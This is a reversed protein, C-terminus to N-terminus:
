GAAFAGPHRTHFDTTDQWAKAVALVKADGFLHGIFSISTPTGDEARFGNPVVVAPHGTLNTYQLLRPAYSPTIVVDVEALAEDMARMLLTRLRNANVYEVAPVFHSARFSNPWAGRGQRVLLDDRNSRTLEDFAAAAEVGLIFGMASPPYADEDPLEVTVMAPALRRMTDLAQRDFAGWEAGNDGRDRDFASALYGVRIGAIGATGDWNFAADRVTPDKGDPGHIADMVLACDEVTRCLPGLKDMSWSLAMAGARSVWGFTPRLASAGCRTAPSVISGLTESGIAFGLLGAVTAAASGASSGSSGQELNWPNKTTGGYWVDGMALAGLTLKAVLVAGAADLRQVVTAEDDLRQDEYPKAGWTTRYDRVALLDKAGWPIGHLPGRYRGATIEADAEAAQRLARAETLEIVCELTPGHRKLRALYMQTLETATVQRTRVLEALETVPRFAIAELNAPRRVRAPRSAVLPRRERPLAAMPVAPDFSLAPRVQNPIAIARLQKFGELNRNLSQVMLEREEETFELGAVKEAEDLLDATITQADQLRAWLVGPFLTGGLGLGSFYAMFARRDLAHPSPM